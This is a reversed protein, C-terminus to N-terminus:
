DNRPERLNVAVWDEALLDTQSAVWPSVLGSVSKIAIYPSYPVLANEGWYLKAIDTQAPYDGEGVLYLFMGEGNWGRRAIAEGTKLVSLARSFDM